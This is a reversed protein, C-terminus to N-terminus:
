MKVTVDNLIDKAHAYDMEFGDEKKLNKLSEGANEFAKSLQNDFASEVSKIKNDFGSKKKPDIAVGRDKLFKEVFRHLNSHINIDM